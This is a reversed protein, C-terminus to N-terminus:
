LYNLEKSRSHSPLIKHTTATIKKRKELMSGKNRCESKRLETVPQTEDRHAPNPKEMHM